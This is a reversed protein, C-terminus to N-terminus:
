MKGKKRLMKYVVLTIRVYVLIHFSRCLDKKVIIIMITQRGVFHFYSKVQFLGFCTVHVYIYLYVTCFVSHTDDCCLCFANKLSGGGGGSRKVNTRSSSKLPLYISLIERHQTQNTSLQHFCQATANGNGYLFFSKKARQKKKKKYYQKM